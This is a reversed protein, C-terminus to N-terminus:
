PLVAFTLALTITEFIAGKRDFNPLPISYPLVIDGPKAFGESSHCETPPSRGISYPLSAFHAFFLGHAVFPEFLNGISHGYRELAVQEFYLPGHHVNGARVLTMMSAFSRNQFPGGYRRSVYNDFTVDKDSKLGIVGAYEGKFAADSASLVEVQDRYVVLSDQFAVVSLQFKLKPEVKASKLITDKGADRKVITLTDGSAVAYYFSNAEIQDVSETWTNPDKARVAIGFQSKESGLNVDVAVYVDASALTENLIAAESPSGAPYLGQQGVLRMEGPRRDENPKGSKRNQFWGLGLVSADPNNFSDITYPILFTQKTDKERFAKEIERLVDRESGITFLRERTPPKTEIRFFFENEEDSPKQVSTFEVSPKSMLRETRDRVSRYAEDANNNGEALPVRRPSDEALASGALGSALALALWRTTRHNRRLSFTM